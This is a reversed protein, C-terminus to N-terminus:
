RIAWKKKLYDEVDLHYDAKQELKARAIIKGVPILFEELYPELTEPQIRLQNDSSCYNAKFVCSLQKEGEEWGEMLLAEIEANSVVKQVPLVLEIGIHGLVERYAELVTEVQNIKIKEGHKEREGSILLRANETRAVEVRLLHFYLHCGICPTYFGYRHILESLYRGNLIWWLRHDELIKPESLSFPADRLIDRLWGLQTEVAKLSGYESPARGITLIAEKVKNEEIFKLFAAFSDRGAIEVIVKEDEM